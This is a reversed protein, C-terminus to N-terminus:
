QSIHIDISIGTVPKPPLYERNYTVANSHASENGRGDVATVTYISGDSQPTLTVTEGVVNMVLARPSAPDFREYVNYTLPAHLASGEVNEMPADWTLRIGQEQANVPASSFLFLFVVIWLAILATFLWFLFRLSRPPDYEKM